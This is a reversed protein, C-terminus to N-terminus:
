KADGLADSRIFRSAFNRETMAETAGHRWRWKSTTYAANMRTPPNTSRMGHTAGLCEFLAARAIAFHGTPETSNALERNCLPLHRDGEVHLHHAGFFTPRRRADGVQAPTTRTRGRSALLSWRLM